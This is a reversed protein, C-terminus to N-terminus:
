LMSRGCQMYVHPPTIVTGYNSRRTESAVSPSLACSPVRPPTIQSIVGGSKCTFFPASYNRGRKPSVNTFALVPPYNSRRSRTAQCSGHLFRDPPPASWVICTSSSVGCQQQRKTESCMSVFSKDRHHTPNHSQGWRESAVRTQLTGVPSDKDGHLHWGSRPRGAAGCAKTVLLRVKTRSSKFAHM